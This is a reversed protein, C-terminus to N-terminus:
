RSAPSEISSKRSPNGVTFRSFTIWNRSVAVSHMTAAVRRGVQVDTSGGAVRRFPNFGIVADPASLNLLIIERKLVRHSCYKAVADYLTGHPDILCFGQGNRLDGRIMWELLKSKGSGSSGILHMHTLREDETLRIKRGAADYGLFLNSM